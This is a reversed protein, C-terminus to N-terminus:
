CVPFCNCTTRVGYKRTCPLPCSAGHEYKNHTESKRLHIESQISNINSKMNHTVTDHIICNNVKMSTFVSGMNLIINGEWPRAIDHIHPRYLVTNVATLGKLIRRGRFKVCFRNLQASNLFICMIKCFLINKAQWCCLKRSFESNQKMNQEMDM